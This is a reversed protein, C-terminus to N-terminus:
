RSTEGDAAAATEADQEEPTVWTCDQGPEHTDTLHEIVARMETAWETPVHIPVNDSRCATDALHGHDNGRWCWWGVHALQERDVTPQTDSLGAAPAPPDALDDRLAAAREADLELWYPERDPGSMCVIVTDDDSHLVDGLGWRLQVPDDATTPDPLSAMDHIFADVVAPDPLGAASTDPQQGSAQRAADRIGAVLVKEADGPEAPIMAYTPLDDEVPVRGLVLGRSALWLELHPWVVPHVLVQRIDPATTM